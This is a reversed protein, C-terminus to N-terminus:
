SCPQSFSLKIKAGTITADQINNPYSCSFELFWEVQLIRAFRECLTCGVSDHLLESSIDM